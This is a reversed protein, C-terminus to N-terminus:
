SEAEKWWQRHLPHFSFWAVIDNRTDLLHVCVKHDRKVGQPSRLFDKAKHIIVVIPPPVLLLYRCFEKQIKVSNWSLAKLFDQKYGCLLSLM